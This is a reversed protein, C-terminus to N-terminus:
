FLDRIMKRLVLVAGLAILGILVAFPLSDATQAPLSAALTITGSARSPAASIFVLVLILAYRKLTGERVSRNRGAIPGYRRRSECVTLAPSLLILKQLPVLASVKPRPTWRKGEKGLLCGRVVLFM